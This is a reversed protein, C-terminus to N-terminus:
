IQKGPFREIGMRGMVRSTTFQHLLVGGLHALLLLIYIRAAIRHVVVPPLDPTIAQPLIAAPSLGLGSLLLMGAGSFLLIVLMFYLLFHIAKFGFKHL